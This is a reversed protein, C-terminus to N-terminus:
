ARQQNKSDYERRKKSDCLVAYAEAIEKFRAEAVFAHFPQIFLFVVSSIVMMKDPIVPMTNDKTLDALDMEPDAARAQGKPRTGARGARQQNKSDYERRKKSDVPM